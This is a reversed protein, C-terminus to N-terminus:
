EPGNASSSPTLAISGAALTLPRQEGKPLVVRIHTYPLPWSGTDTAGIRLASRSTHAEFRHLRHRAAVNGTQLGDDEFLEATSTSAPADRPPPFYHLARSPEETLAQDHWTDTTALLAGARVFLPLCELAAPVTITQGGPWYQGGCFDYWGLAHAGKPLYLTRERQGPALV